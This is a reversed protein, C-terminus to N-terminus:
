AAERRDAFRWQYWGGKVRVLGDAEAGLTLMDRIVVAIIERQTRPAHQAIAPLQGVFASAQFCTDVPTADAIESYVQLFRTWGDRAGFVLTGVAVSYSEAQANYSM